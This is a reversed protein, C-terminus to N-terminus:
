EPIVNIKVSATVDHHIRIEATFSGLRKIPEELHIKKRDIDHGEAKLAEAIDMNTVSGFLKEEEGAKARITLTLASLSDAAAKNADRVKVAKEQIIRKNHEFEKINKTNAEVAIKQPLLYNRAYGEAVTVVDGIKGLTRVDEKLFVKM